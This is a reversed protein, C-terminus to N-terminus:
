VRERAIEARIDNIRRMAENHLRDAERHYGHRREWESKGILSRAQEIRRRRDRHMLWDVFLVGAFSIANGLLFGALFNM